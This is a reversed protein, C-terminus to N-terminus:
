NLGTAQKICPVLASHHPPPGQPSRLASLALAIEVEALMEAAGKQPEGNVLM